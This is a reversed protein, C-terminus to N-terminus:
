SGPLPFFALVLHVTGLLALAVAAACAGHRSRPRLASVPRSMLKELAAGGDYRPVKRNLLGKLAPSAAGM